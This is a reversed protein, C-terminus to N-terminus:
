PLPNPLPPVIPEPVIPVEIMVPQGTVPDLVPEGTAANIQPVWETPGAPPPEVPEVPPPAPPTCTPPFWERGALVVCATKLCAGSWRGQGLTIGVPAPEAAAQVGDMGPPPLWKCDGATDTVERCACPSPDDSGGCWVELPPWPSQWPEEYSALLPDMASPLGGQSNFLAEAEPTTASEEYCARYWCYPQSDAVSPLNGLGRVEDNIWVNGSTCRRTAPDGGQWTVYQVHSSTIVNPIVLGGIIAAFTTAAVILAATRGKSTSPVQEDAM